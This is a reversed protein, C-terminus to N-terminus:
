RYRNIAAARFMYFIFLKFIIYFFGPTAVGPNKKQHTGLHVDDIGNRAKMIARSLKFLM